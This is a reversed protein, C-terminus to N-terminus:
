CFDETIHALNDSDIVIGIGESSYTPDLLNEKHPPSNIWAVVIRNSFEEETDWILSKGDFAFIDSEAINEGLGSYLYDGIQKTCNFNAKLGRMTADENEPNIHSFYKRDSMDFSHLYAIKNLQSDLELTSVNNQKRLQNVKEHILHIVLSENLKNSSKPPFFTDNTINKQLPLPKPIEDSISKNQLFSSNELSENKSYTIFFLACSFLLLFLLMKKM